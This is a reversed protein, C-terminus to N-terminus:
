KIGANILALYSSAQPTIGPQKARHLIGKSFQPESM